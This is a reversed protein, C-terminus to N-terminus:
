FCFILYFAQNIVNPYPFWTRIHSIVPLLSFERTVRSFTFYTCLFPLLPFNILLLFILGACIILTLSSGCNEAYRNHQYLSYPLRFLSFLFRLAPIIAPFLCAILSLSPTLCFLISLSIHVM